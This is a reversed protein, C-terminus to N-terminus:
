QIPKPAQAPLRRCLDPPEPARCFDPAHGSTRWYGVLGLRTALAEFEPTRRAAAFSPEYVLPLQRPGDRDFLRGAAAVAARDRGTLALAVVTFRSLNAPDAALAEFRAGTRSIRAPDGSSLADVLAHREPMLVCASPERATAQAAPWNRSWLAIDLRLWLFCQPDMVQRDVRSSMQEASDYRGRIADDWAIGGMEFPNNPQAALVRRHQEAADDIRGTRELLHSYSQAEWLMKSRRLSLAKLFLAEARAPDADQRLLAEAMYGEGRQPELRQARMASALGEETLAQRAPPQARGAAVALFQSLFVHAPFFSPELAVTSRLAAIERDLDADSNRSNEVCFDAWSAMAPSALDPAHPGDAAGMLCNLGAIMEHGIGAPGAQGLPVEYHSSWLIRSGDPPELRAYVEVQGGISEIRGRLRYAGRDLGAAGSRLAANAVGPRFTTLMDERLDAAFSRPLGPGTVAFPEVAVEPQVTAQAGAQLTWAAVAAAAILAVISAAGVLRPRGGALWRRRRQVPPPAPEAPPTAAPTDVVLRFGVGYLTDIRFPGGARKALKRLQGIVRNVADDSVARGGWCRDILEERTVITNRADALLVLVTMVRRQLTERGDPWIVELSSPRAELPGIQIGAGQGLQLGPGGQGSLALDRKPHACAPTLGVFRAATPPLDALSRWLDAKRGTLDARRGNGFV